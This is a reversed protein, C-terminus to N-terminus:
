RASSRNGMVLVNLANAQAPRRARISAPFSSGFRLTTTWSSSRTVYEGTVSCRTPPSPMVSESSQSAAMDMLSLVAALMIRPVRPPGSPKVLNIRENPSSIVRSSRQSVASLSAMGSSGRSLVVGSAIARLRCSSTRPVLSEGEERWCSSFQSTPLLTPPGNSRAPKGAFQRIASRVPAPPYPERDM